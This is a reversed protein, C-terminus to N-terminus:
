EDFSADRMQQQMAECDARYTRTAFFICIGTIVLTVPIVYLADHLGSAKFSETMETANAALMAAQSYRDSLWGVLVPGLAGGLLYQGAFYVAMATARLRPEVVDQLAPYVTTFYNYYLLWGFGFLVAFGILSQNGLSLASYTAVGAIVLSLAGYILRGTQTKQHLRDSIVAGATLAILGTVGVILGTLLAAQEIALGFYRQLLAVLFATGSYGATQVAIGSLIIWWMTKIQMVRKFPKDVARDAVQVEEAAGRKPERIFLIVLALLFGPVAAIFFPVRWNGEFAKVIAGVTFFALVLGLPLGLMYIGMARARKNAPYLDGILSTAAPACSAEGVGVGVRFLLLSVYNWAAGTAATLGSWVSLGLALLKKRSWTDALRGLPLGAIAYVLTFAASLLGLQADTLGFELRIPEFVVAPITRDYFNLLNFLFLIFLVKGANEAQKIGQDYTTGVM